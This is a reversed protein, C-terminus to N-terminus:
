KKSQSRTIGSDSKEENKSERYWKRFGDMTLRNDLDEIPRSASAIIQVLTKTQRLMEFTPGLPDGYKQETAAYIYERFLPPAAEKYEMGLTRRQEHMYRAIQEESYGEARLKAPVTKLAHVKEEYEQRLPSDKLGKECLLEWELEYENM